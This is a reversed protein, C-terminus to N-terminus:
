KNIVIGRFFNMGIFPLTLIANILSCVRYGHRKRIGTHDLLNGICFGKVFADIQSNIRITDQSPSAYRIHHM